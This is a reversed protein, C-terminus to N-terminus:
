VRFGGARKYIFKNQKPRVGVCLKMLCIFRFPFDRWYTCGTENETGVPSLSHFLCGQSVLLQLSAGDPMAWGRLSSARGDQDQPALGLKRIACTKSPSSSPQHRACNAPKVARPGLGFPLYSSNRPLFLPPGRVCTHM